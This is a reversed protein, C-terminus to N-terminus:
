NPFITKIIEYTYKVQDDYNTCRIGIIKKM